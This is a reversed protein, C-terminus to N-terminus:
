RGAVRATCNPLRGWRGLRKPSAAFHEAHVPRGHRLMLTAIRAAECHGEDALQAFAEFAVRHHGIEYADRAALYRTDRDAAAASEARQGAAFAIGAAAALTAALTAVRTAARTAARTTACEPRQRGEAHPPREIDM